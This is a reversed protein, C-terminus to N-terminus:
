KQIKETRSNLWEAIKPWFARTKAEYALGVHGGEIEIFTYDKSNIYNELAKISELTVIHDEKAALNLIPMTLNKLKVPKDNITMKEDRLNTTQFCDRIYKIFAKGPIDINENMWREALSYAQRFMWNNMNDYFTTNKKLEKLPYITMVGYRVLKAPMNGYHEIIKDLHFVEEDAWLQILGGKSGDFPTTLLVLNKIKEPYMAAYIIALSGGICWGFLNLQDQGTEDLIIDVCEKMYQDIYDDFELFRDEDTPEGWDILYVDHGQDLWYEIFSNGPQLDLIYSKNILAYVFLLPTKYKKPVDSKYRYLKMKNDEHIIDKPTLGVEPLEDPDMLYEFRFDPMDGSFGSSDKIRSPLVNMEHILIEQMKDIFAQDYNFDM